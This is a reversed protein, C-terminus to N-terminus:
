HNKVTVVKNRGTQKAKEVGNNARGIFQEWDEHTRYSSVGASITVKPLTRKSRSSVFRIKEIGKRIQEAIEKAIDLEVDPLLLLFEEGGTRVPLGSERIYTQIKKAVKTLVVDGIMFGYNENFHDFHDIDIAIAAIQREPKETLWIDVSEHMSKRNHMGTLNDLLRESKMDDVDQKLGVAQASVELIQDQLQQQSSKIEYTANILQAIVEKTTENGLEDLALLGQDLQEIYQNVSQNAKQTSNGIDTLMEGFGELVNETAPHPKAIWENYLEEFFFSDLTLTSKERQRIAQSLPTNRGSIHEYAVAYNVPTAPLALKTLFQTVKALIDNAKDMSDHYKM